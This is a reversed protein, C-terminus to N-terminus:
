TGNHQGTRLEQLHQIYPLQQDTHILTSSLLIHLHLALMVLGHLMTGAMGYSM